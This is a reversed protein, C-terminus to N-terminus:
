PDTPSNSLYFLTKDVQSILRLDHEHFHPEFEPREREYIVLLMKQSSAKSSVMWDKPNTVAKFGKLIALENFSNDSSAILLNKDQGELFEDFYAFDRDVRYEAKMSNFNVAIKSAHYLGHLSSLMLVAFLTVSLWQWFRSRM